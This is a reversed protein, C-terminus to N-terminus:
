IEHDERCTEPKRHCPPRIRDPFRTVHGDFRHVTDLRVCAHSRFISATLISRVSNGAGLIAIRWILRIAIGSVCFYGYRVDTGSHQHNRPNSSCKIPRVVNIAQSPRNRCRRVPPSHLDTGGLAPQADQNPIWGTSVTSPIIGISATHARESMNDRTTHRNSSASIVVRGTRRVM